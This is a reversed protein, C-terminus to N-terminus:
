ARKVLQTKEWAVKQQHQAIFSTLVESMISLTLTNDPTEYAYAQWAHCLKSITRGSFGETQKAFHSWSAASAADEAVAIKKGKAQTQLLPPDASAGADTRDRVINLNFYHKLMIEREQEQPTDFNLVEDIRDTM